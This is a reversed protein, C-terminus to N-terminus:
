LRENYELKLSQYRWPANKGSKSPQNKRYIAPLLLCGTLLSLDLDIEPV